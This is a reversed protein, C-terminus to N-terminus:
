GATGTNNKSLVFNARPNDCFLNCSLDVFYVFTTHQLSVEQPGKERLYFPSLVKIRLSNTDIGYFPVDTDADLTALWDVPTQRIRLRGNMADIDEGLNDNQQEVLGVLSRRLARTTFFRYRPRQGKGSYSMPAKFYCLDLAGTISEVLDPKTAAIYSGSYNKLGDFDTRSLTSWESHGTAHGGNFGPTTGSASKVIHYPIGNMDDTNASAPSSIAQVEFKEAIEAWCDARRVKVEEVIREKGSNMVPEKEDFAFNHTMHRFPLSATKMFDGQNIVDTAFLGTMKAAAGRRVKVNFQYDTGSSVFDVMTKNMLMEFLTYQNLRQSIDTWSFREMNKLTTTVLDAIGSAQLAM